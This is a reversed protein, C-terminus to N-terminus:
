RSTEKDLDSLFARAAEVDAEENPNAPMAMYLLAEIHVEARSAHKVAEARAAEAAAARAEAEKRKRLQYRAATLQEHTADDDTALGDAIVRLRAIEAVANRVHDDVWTAEPVGAATLIERVEAIVAQTIADGDDNIRGRLRRVEAVLAPVYSAIRENREAAPEFHDYDSLDVEIEALREATLPDSM